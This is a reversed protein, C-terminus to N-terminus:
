FEPTFVLFLRIISTGRNVLVSTPHFNKSLFEQMSTRPHFNKCITADVVKTAPVLANSSSAPPPIVAQKRQRIIEIIHGVIRMPVLLMLFFLAGDTLLELATVNMAMTLADEGNYDTGIICCSLSITLFLTALIFLDSINVYSYKGYEEDAYDFLSV